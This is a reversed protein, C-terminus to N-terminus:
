QTLTINYNAETVFNNTGVTTFDPITGRFHIIHNGPPLAKLFVWYGDSIAKTSGAPVGFVNGEPFVVEFRPSQVRYSRLESEDLKVGDISTTLETVGENQSAACKKLEADTHIDPYEVESCEANILPFLIDKGSPIACTREVQGGFSGALFWVPGEQAVNCHAGTEDTVPNLDHPTQAAWKWWRATWEAYSIGHLTTNPAYRQPFVSKANELKGTTAAPSHMTYNYTAFGGIIIISAAICAYILRTRSTNEVTPM